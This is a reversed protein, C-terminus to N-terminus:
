PAVHGRRFDKDVGTPVTTRHWGQPQAPRQLHRRQAGMDPQQSVIRQRPYIHRVEHGTRTQDQDFLGM